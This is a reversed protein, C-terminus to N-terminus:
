HLVPNNSIAIASTNDCVIPVKEYIIDHNTLQSKMLLINACCGAAAVYEAEASSMAVSQQKKASWCLLKGGLLQCDGLTNKRDMNCGAYDFDRYQTENVSRDNLDTGLNNPPVMPTKVSSGNIDYKKLMDKVYKEQNISIGRESQKIKKPEKKSLFDVFLCEHASAASLQKAIARTLMRAGRNGIINVLKIHKDQPWRGQPTPTIMSPVPLSPSLIITNQTSTDEKILNMLIFINMLHIDKHNLLTSTTLQPNQSNSLRPAKMLHSTIPKKLKNDRTNFVRKTPTKSRNANSSEARTSKLAEAKKAQLAEGRKFWKIDYHDITTHNPSGFDECKKFAHQPNRPNIKRELYIIRNYGNTDHDYSGCLKSIPYYLCENSLHDIGGCHICPPFFCKSPRPINPRSSMRLVSKITKLGSIPEVGDLKKLPPLPISYVSSKDASDYDIASS